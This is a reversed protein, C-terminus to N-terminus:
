SFRDATIGDGVTVEWLAAEGSEHWERYAEEYDDSLLSSRLLRVARVVVASRSTGREAAYSDLFSLDEAPLSMSIKM